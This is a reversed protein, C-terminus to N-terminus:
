LLSVPDIDVDCREPFEDPLIELPRRARLIVQWRYEGGLKAYFCPVPGILSARPDHRRMQAKLSGAWQKARAEAQASSLDHFVFRALRAFPPYGLRRRNELEAEFFGEYDHHAASRLVYHDPQYTQLIARGGLLGRGARGAVQTLVQFTREGARYDPLNLGTDASVVGVLTVLPLDLGKAVMQTGVLVDARRAAFHGLIVEHAGKARTSDADWRLARVKPFAQELEAVVRQTGAGFHRVRSSGCQPCAQPPRRTYGCHHCVLAEQDEHHALPTQCRPCRAVWGCDRCFVYTSRGRRNLFLIAQQSAQLVEALASRLPRSFLSTNGAKLEQRMDVVRIPPLHISRAQAEESKYHSAVSLREAQRKLRETHGLIRNPLTLREFDGQLSRHFTVVDPTASGMLCVAGALKAYAIATERAHYRPSRSAEKYSDDHSEDVVILGLDPLPSFLASRPGIVVSVLGERARRWTDYREGDSLQSHVLGVEGPFRALFRRITQPTLAIEPVLAIAQRGHALVAEVARLYIETKGSGTVGHLLFAKHAQRSRIAEEIPQWVVAQQHTLEPPTSPVYEVSELPDRWVEAQGLSILGLGEMFHLDALNGGSEAYLWTVDIPEREAILMELMKTRRQRTSPTRGLGDFAATLENPPKALRATRVTRPNIRPPDLVSSRNLVGRRILTQAARSWDLKGMARTIQRGRLPGRRQLLQVLRREVSTKAEDDLGTREYVADAKRSLGPPLMITLCDILASATERQMWAALRLQSETLVPQPDVLDELPRIDTVPAQDDLNVVIGQVRRKGFPATVLHGPGVRSGLRDPISYHFTGRIPALNVAIVAFQNM